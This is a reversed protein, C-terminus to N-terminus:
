EGTTCETLQDITRDLLDCINLPGHAAAHGEHGDDNFMNEGIDNVNQVYDDM